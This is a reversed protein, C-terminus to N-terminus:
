NAGLIVVLPVHAYAPAVRGDLPAVTPIKADRALREAERQWGPRFLILSRAYDLNPADTSVAHRYGRALIRTAEGGAAGSIGNGNLVLVSTRARPHPPPLPQAPPTATQHKPGSTAPTAAPRTGTAQFLLVLAGVAMLSVALLMALAFTTPRSSFPRNIPQVHEV